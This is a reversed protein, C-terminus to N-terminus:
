GAKLIQQVRRVSIGALTALERTSFGNGALFVVQEDRSKALAKLLAATEALREAGDVAVLDLPSFVLYHGQVPYVEM